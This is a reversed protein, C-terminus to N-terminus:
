ELNSNYNVIIKGLNKYYIPVIQEEKGHSDPTRIGM